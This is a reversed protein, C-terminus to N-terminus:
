FRSKLSPDAAGKRQKQNSVNQATRPADHFDLIPWSKQLIYNRETQRGKQGSCQPLSPLFTTVESTQFTFYNQQKSKLNHNQPKSKIIKIRVNIQIARLLGVISLQARVVVFARRTWTSSFRIGSCNPTPQRLVSFLEEKERLFPAPHGTLFRHWHM